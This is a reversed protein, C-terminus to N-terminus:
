RKLDIVFAGETSVNFVNHGRSKILEESGRGNYPLTSSLIFTPTTSIGELQKSTVPTRIGVFDAMKYLVPDTQISDSLLLSIRNYYLLDKQLFVVQQSAINATKIAGMASRAIEIDRPLPETTGSLIPYVDQGIFLDAYDSKKNHYFILAVQKLTRIKQYCISGFLATCCMLTWNLYKLRRSNLYISLCVGASLILFVQGRNIWLGELILGPLKQVLFIWANMLYATGFAMFGVIQGVIPIWHLLLFGLTISLLFFALPVAIIGSLWFYLPFQHFYYISLPLTFIQAAFSLSVLQWM